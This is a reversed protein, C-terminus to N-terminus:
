NPQKERKLYLWRIADRTVVAQHAVAVVLNTETRETKLSTKTGKPKPKPNVKVRAKNTLSAIHQAPRVLRHHQHLVWEWM